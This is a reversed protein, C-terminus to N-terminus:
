TSWTCLKFVRERTQSLKQCISIGKFIIFFAKLKIIFATKKRLNNLNKRSNKTIYFFSKIPINLNIGSNIVDCFPGCIIHMYNKLFFINRMNYNTFQDFKM